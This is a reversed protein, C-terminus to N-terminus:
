ASAYFYHNRFFIVNLGQRSKRRFADVGYRPVTSHVCRGSFSKHISVFKSLFFSRLIQSKCVYFCQWRGSFFFLFFFPQLLLGGRAIVIVVLTNCKDLLSVASGGVRWRTGVLTRHVFSGRADTVLRKAVMSGFLKYPRSPESEPNSILKSESFSAANENSSVM